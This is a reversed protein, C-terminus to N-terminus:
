KGLWEEKIEHKGIIKVSSFTILMELDSISIEFQEGLLMCWHSYEQLNKESYDARHELHFSLM